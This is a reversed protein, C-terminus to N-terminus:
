KKEDNKYEEKEKENKNDTKLNDYYEVKPLKLYDEYSGITNIEKGEEYFRKLIEDNLVDYTFKSLDM